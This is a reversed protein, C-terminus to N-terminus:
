PDPMGDESVPGSIPQDAIETMGPLVKFLKPTVGFLLFIKISQLICTFWAEMSKVFFMKEVQRRTIGPSESQMYRLFHDHGLLHEPRVSSLLAGHQKLFTLLHEYQQCMGQIRVM